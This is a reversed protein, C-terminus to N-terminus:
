GLNSLVGITALALAILLCNRALVRRRGRALYVFSTLVITALVFKLLVVAIPGLGEFTGRVLPNLEAANGHNQMMVVSTVGDLIELLWALAAIALIPLWANGDFRRSAGPRAARWPLLPM